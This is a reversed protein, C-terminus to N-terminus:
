YGAWDRLEAFTLHWTMIIETGDSYRDAVTITHDGNDKVFWDHQAAWKIQNPTLPM